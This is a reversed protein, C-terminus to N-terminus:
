SEVRDKAAEIWQELRTQPIDVTAALEVADVGALERVTTVDAAGLRESYAPGIGKIETVPVADDTAPDPDRDDQEETVDHDPKEDAVSETPSDPESPEREVTVAAPEDADWEAAGNLGLLRKLRRLLSM